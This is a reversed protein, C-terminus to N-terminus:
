FYCFMELKSWLPPLFNSQFLKCKFICKLRRFVRASVHVIDADTILFVTNHGKVGALLCVKKIDDEFDVIGYGRTLTLKYLECSM